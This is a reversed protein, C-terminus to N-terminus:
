KNLEIYTDIIQQIESVEFESCGIKVGKPFSVTYDKTGERTSKIKPHRGQLSENLMYLDNYEIVNGNDVDIKGKSIVVKIRGTGLVLTKTQDKKYVPEWSTEVIEKPVSYYARHPEDKTLEPIYLGANGRYATYLTGKSNLGISIPSLYGIIEKEMNQKNFAEKTSPKFQSMGRNDAYAGLEESNNLVYEGLVKYIKGVTYHPYFDSVSVCEVYKDEILELADAYIPDYGGDRDFYVKYIGPAWVENSDLIGTQGRRKWTTSSNKDVVNPNDIVRVKDGIKM